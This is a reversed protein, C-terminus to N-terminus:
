AVPKSANEEVYGVVGALTRLSAYDSEPIDVHLRKRIGRLFNLWDTSDLDIAAYAINCRRPGMGERLAPVDSWQIRVGHRRLGLPQAPVTTTRHKAFSKWSHPLSGRQANSVFTM